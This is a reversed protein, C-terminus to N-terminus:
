TGMFRHKFLSMFDYVARAELAIDVIYAARCGVEATRGALLLLFQAGALVSLTKIRCWTRVEIGVFVIIELKKSFNAFDLTDLLYEDARTDAEVIHKGVLLAVEEGLKYLM